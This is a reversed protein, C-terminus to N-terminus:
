KKEPVLVNYFAYSTYVKGEESSFQVTLINEDDISPQMIYGHKDAFSQFDGALRHIESTVRENPKSGDVGNAYNEILDLIQQEM